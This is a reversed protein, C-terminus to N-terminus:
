TAPKPSGSRRPRWCIRGPDADPVRRHAHLAASRPNRRPGQHAEAHRSRLRRDCQVQYLSAHRPEAQRFGALAHDARRRAHSRRGRHLEAWAPGVAPHVRRCLPQDRSRGLLEMFQDLVGIGPGGADVFTTVGQYVGVTDPNASDSRAMPMSMSTSGAPTLYNGSVDIIKAGPAADRSGVHQIKGDAVHVDAVKDIGQEADLM